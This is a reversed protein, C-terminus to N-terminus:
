VGTTVATEAFTAEALDARVHRLVEGPTSVEVVCNIGRDAFRGSLDATTLGDLTSAAVTLLLTGALETARYRAPWPRSPLSELVEVIDRTTVTGSGTRVVQSAKGGIASIAPTGALECRLPEDPLRRVVDGTDYRLVPM